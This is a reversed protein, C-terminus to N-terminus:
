KQVDSSPEAVFEYSTMVVRRTVIHWGKERLDSITGKLDECGCIKLAEEKTISGHNKLHDGIAQEHTILPDHPNIM